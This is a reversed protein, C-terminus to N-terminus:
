NSDPPSSRDHAHARFADRFIMVLQALMIALGLFAVALGITPPWPIALALIVVLFGVLYFWRGRVVWGILIGM